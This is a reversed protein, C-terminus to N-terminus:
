RVGERRLRCSRLRGRCALARLLKGLRLLLGPSLELHQLHQVRAGRSLSVRKKAVKSQGVNCDELIPPRCTSQPETANSLLPPQCSHREHM